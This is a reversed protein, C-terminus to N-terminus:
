APSFLHALSKIDRKIGIGWIYFLLVEQLLNDRGQGMNRLVLQTQWWLGQSHCCSGWAPRFRTEPIHSGPEVWLYSGPSRRPGDAARVTESWGETWNVPLRIWLSSSERVRPIDVLYPSTLSWLPLSSRHEGPAPVWLPPPAPSAPASHLTSAALLWRLETPTHPPKILLMARSGLNLACPIHQNPRQKKMQKPVASPLWPKAYTLARGSM